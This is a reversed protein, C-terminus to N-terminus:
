GCWRPWCPCSRGGPRGGGAGRGLHGPRALHGARDRGCARGPVRTARAHARRIHRLQARGVTDPAEAADLWGAVRPDTKERHIVEALAGLEEARQPAGARPMTVEQDWGLISSAASLAGIRRWHAMLEDFATNAM